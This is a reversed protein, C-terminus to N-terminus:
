VKRDCARVSTTLLSGVPADLAERSRASAPRCSVACRACMQGVDRRPAVSRSRTGHRPEPAWPRARCRATNRGRSPPSRPTGRPIFFLFYPYPHTFESKLWGRPVPGCTARKGPCTNFVLPKNQSGVKSVNRVKAAYLTDQEFRILQNVSHPITGALVTADLSPM